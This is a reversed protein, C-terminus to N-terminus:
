YTCCVLNILESEKSNEEVKLNHVHAHFLYMLDDLHAAGRIGYKLGPRVYVNRDSECAFKYMYRRGDGVKPLHSIFRNVDYTFYAHTAYTVFEKMLDLTLPKGKFYYEHIRKSVELITEPTCQNLIKRPALLEPYRNSQELVSQEMKCIDAAAEVRTYGILDDVDNIRKNKMAELPDEIM